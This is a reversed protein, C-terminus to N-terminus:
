RQKKYFSKRHFVKLLSFQFYIQSFRLRPLKFASTTEMTINRENQKNEYLPTLKQLHIHKPLTRLVPVGGIM